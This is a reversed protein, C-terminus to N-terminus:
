ATLHAVASCLLIRRLQRRPFEKFAGAKPLVAPQRAGAHEEEAPARVQSQRRRHDLTHLVVPCVATYFSLDLREVASYRSLDDGGTLEHSVAYPSSFRRARVRGM